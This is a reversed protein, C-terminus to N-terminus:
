PVVAVRGRERQVHRRPIERHRAALSAGDGSLDRLYACTDFHLGTYITPLALDSTPGGIPSMEGYSLDVTSEGEACMAYMAPFIGELGDEVGAAFGAPNDPWHWGAAHWKRALYARDSDTLVTWDFIHGLEFYLSDRDTATLEYTPLGMQPGGSCGPAGDQCVMNTPDFAISVAPSPAKSADVWWQWQGGVPAGAPTVLQAHPGLPVRASHALPQAHLLANGPIAQAPAALALLVVPTLLLRKM